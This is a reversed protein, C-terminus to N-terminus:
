VPETVQPNARRRRAPAKRPIIQVDAGLVEALAVVTRLEPNVPNTLLRRISAENKGVARALDAKSMGMQERLSDLRNVIEDIAAIQRRQSEYEARFEPDELERDRLRDHFSTKSPPTPDAAV